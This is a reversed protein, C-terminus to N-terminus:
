VALLRRRLLGGVALLGSGLLLLSAPEPTQGGPHFELQVDDFSTQAGDSTLVIHLDGSVVKAGTTFTLTENAFTGTPIDGNSGSHIGLLTNGAYLAISYSTAGYDLRHGVDVSLTYTHNAVLSTGTLTQSISGGSSWAIGGNVPLNYDLSSPHWSGAQGTVTWDPIAGINYACDLWGCSTGLPNTVGLSGNKIAITDARAPATVCSLVLISLLVFLLTFKLPDEWTSVQPAYSAAM